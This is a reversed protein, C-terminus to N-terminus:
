RKRWYNPKRKHHAFAVINLEDEKMRFVIKFPFRELNIKRYKGRIVPFLKPHDAIENVAQRFKVLLDDSLDESIEKYYDLAATIEIQADEHVVISSAM